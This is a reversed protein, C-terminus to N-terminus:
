QKTKGKVDIPQGDTDFFEANPYITKLDEFEEMLTLPPLTPYQRRLDNLIGALYRGADPCHERQYNSAWIALVRLEQVTLEISIKNDPDGPLGTESCSPCANVGPGLQDLFFTSRCTICLARKRLGVDDLPPM